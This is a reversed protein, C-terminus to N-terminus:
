VLPAPAIGPFDEDAGMAAKWDADVVTRRSMEVDSPQRDHIACLMAPVMVTPPISPRALRASYPEAFDDDGIIEHGHDALREYHSSNTVLHRSM